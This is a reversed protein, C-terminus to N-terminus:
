RAGFVTSACRLWVETGETGGDMITFSLSYCFEPQDRTKCPIIDTKKVFNMEYSYVVEGTECQEVEVIYNNAIGTEKAVSNVTAVLEEPHFAFASEFQIKYSGNEKEIPLVRSTSDNANLLIQHGIMRLAVEIHKEAISDQAYSAPLLMILCLLTLLPIKLCKLRM